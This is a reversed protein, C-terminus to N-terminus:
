AAAVNVAAVVGVATATAAITTAEAFFDQLQAVAHLGELRPHQSSAAAGGRGVSLMGAPVVVDVVASVLFMVATMMM